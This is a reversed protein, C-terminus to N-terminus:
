KGRRSAMVHLCNLSRCSAGRSRVTGARVIYDIGSAAATPLIIRVPRESQAQASAHLGCFAAATAVMARALRFIWAHHTHNPM